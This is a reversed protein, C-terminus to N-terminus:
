DINQTEAEQLVDRSLKAQGLTIVMQTGGSFFLQVLFLLQKQRELWNHLLEEMVM